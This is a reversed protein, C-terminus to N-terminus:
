YNGDNPPIAFTPGAGSINFSIWQKEPQRDALTFGILPYDVVEKGTPTYHVAFTIDSNAPILKAAHFPRYDDPQVGPVYCVNGGATAPGRPPNENDESGVATGTPPSGPRPGGGGRAGPAARNPARAAGTDAWKVLTDIDRQALSRDNAFAGHRPDAFWPPMQRSEARAKISRAWPRTSEYSLMSFPGIQGPRHCSQCHKQLIPLVDKNFTVTPNSEEVPAPKAFTTAAMLLLGAASTAVLKKNSMITVEWALITM